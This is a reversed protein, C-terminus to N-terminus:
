SNFHYSRDGSFSYPWKASNSVGCGTGYTVGTREHELLYEMDTVHALITNYVYEYRLIDELQSIEGALMGDSLGELYARAEDLHLLRFFPLEPYAELVKRAISFRGWGPKRCRYYLFTFKTPLTRYKEANDQWLVLGRAITRERDVHKYLEHALM